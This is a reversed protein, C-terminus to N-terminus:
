LGGLDVLEGIVDEHEAGARRRHDWRNRSDLPRHRQAGHFVHLAHGLGHGFQRRTAVDITSAVAWTRAGRSGSIAWSTASSIWPWSTPKYRPSDTTATCGVDTSSADPSRSFASSTMTAIPTRGSTESARPAPRATPVRPPM